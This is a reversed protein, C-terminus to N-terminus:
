RVADPPVDAGGATMTLVQIAGSAHGIGWRANAASADFHRIAQINTLQIGRLTEVGGLKVNDLYVIVVSPSTFSDTGRPRLWNTRLAEVVDYANQYTNAQIQEATLVNRDARPAGETVVPTPAACAAALALVAAALARSSLRM